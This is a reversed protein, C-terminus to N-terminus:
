IELRASWDRLMEVKYIDGYLVITWDIIHEMNNDGSGTRQVRTTVNQSKKSSSESQVLSSVIGLCM